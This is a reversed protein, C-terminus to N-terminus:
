ADAHSLGVRSQRGAAANDNAIWRLGSVVTAWVLAPASLSVIMGLGIMRVVALSEM